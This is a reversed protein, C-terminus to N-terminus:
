LNDKIEKLYQSMNALSTSNINVGLNFQLLYILTSFSNAIKQLEKDQEQLNDNICSLLINLEQLEEKILHLETESSM